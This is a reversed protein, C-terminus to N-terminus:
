HRSGTQHHFTMCVAQARSLKGDRMISKTVQDVVADYRRKLHDTRPIDAVNPLPFKYGLGADPYDLGEARTNEFKVLEAEASSQASM